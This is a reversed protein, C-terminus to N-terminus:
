DGYLAKRARIPAQEAFWEPDGGNPRRTQDHDDIWELGNRLQAAEHEVVWKQARIDCLQQRVEELQARLKEVEPWVRQLVAEVIIEAREGAVIGTQHAHAALGDRIFFELTAKDVRIGGRLFRQKETSVAAGQIAGHSFCLVDQAM